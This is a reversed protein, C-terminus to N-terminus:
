KKYNNSTRMTTTALASQIHTLSIYADVKNDLRINVKRQLRQQRITHSDTPGAAQHGLAALGHWCAARACGKKDKLIGATLTATQTGLKQADLNSHVQCTVPSFNARFSVKDQVSSVLKHFSSPMYQSSCSKNGKM